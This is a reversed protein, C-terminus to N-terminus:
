LIYYAKNEIYYHNCLVELKVQSYKWTYVFCFSPKLVPVQNHQKILFADATPSFETLCFLPQKAHRRTGEAKKMHYRVQYYLSVM